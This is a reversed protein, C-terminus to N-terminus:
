LVRTISPNGSNDVAVNYVRGYGSIEVFGNNDVENGGIDIRTAFGMSTFRIMNNNFSINTIAIEPFIRGVRIGLDENDGPNNANAPPDFDINAPPDNDRNVFVIYEGSAPTFRVYVPRGREIAENRASQFVSLIKRAEGDIKTGNRWSVFSPVALALSIGVIVIAVMLEIITFGQNDKVNISRSEQHLYYNM